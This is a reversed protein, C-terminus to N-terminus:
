GVPTGQQSAAPPVARKWQGDEFTFYLTAPNERNAKKGNPELTTQVQVLNQGIRAVALITADYSSYGAVQKTTYATCGGKDDQLALFAKSYAEGCLFSVKRKDIASILSNFAKKVQREQSKSLQDPIPDYPGSVKAPGTFDSDDAKPGSAPPPKLKQVSGPKDAKGAPATTEPPTATSADSSSVDSSSDDSGCGALSVVLACTVAVAILFRGLNMTALAYHVWARIQM